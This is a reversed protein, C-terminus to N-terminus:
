EEADDAQTKRAALRLKRMKSKARAAAVVLDTVDFEGYSGADNHWAGADDKYSLQPKGATYFVGKPGEHEWVAIKVNGERVEAIPPKAKQTEASM